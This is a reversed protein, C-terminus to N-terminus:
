QSVFKGQHANFVKSRKDDKRSILGQATKVYVPRTWNKQTGDLLSKQENTLILWKELVKTFSVNKFIKSFITSLFDSAGFVSALFGPLALLSASSVGLGGMEASLALQTSSLDNFIRNCVKFLGDPVTKDYKESPAPHNFCTSTRLFYLMKPLSFCSKLMFFGYHADLKEVIWNGKELENIKKELLDAHSKPGLPSGLIIFEDKEPRKIGPCLKQFSALHTSRRGDNGECSKIVSDGYFLFDPQSYASHSYKYVEPHREFVKELMFQRNISNSANEFDIKKIVNEKPQPSEILCRFVHSALEAGKKTGVGVQQSGYRGQRSEFVHYGACKACLRRFTIDEMLSKLAILKAGFFYPRLEFHVEGELIVNVLNTLARLFNLGTQGNSKAILDKLTRPSICELGAGSDNPFSM